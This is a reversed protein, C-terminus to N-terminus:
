CRLGREEEETELKMEKPLKMRPGQDKAAKWQAAMPRMGEM